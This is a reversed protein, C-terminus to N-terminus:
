ALGINIILWNDFESKNSVQAGLLEANYLARKIMWYAEDCINMTIPDDAAGVLHKASNRAANWQDVLGKESTEHLSVLGLRGGTGIHGAGGEESLNTLLSTPIVV